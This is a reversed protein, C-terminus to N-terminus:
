LISCPITLEHTSAFPIFKCHYCGALVQTRYHKKCSTCKAFSQRLVILNQFPCDELSVKLEEVETRLLEVQKDPKQGKFTQTMKEHELMKQARELKKREVELQTEKELALQDRNELDRGHATLKNM